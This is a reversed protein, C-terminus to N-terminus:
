YDLPLLIEEGAPFEWSQQKCHQLHCLRPSGPEGHMLVIVDGRGVEGRGLLQDPLDRVTKLGQQLMEERTELGPCCHSTDRQLVLLVKHTNECREMKHRIHICYICGGGVGGEGVRGWGVWGGVGMRESGKESKYKTCTEIRTPSSALWNETM